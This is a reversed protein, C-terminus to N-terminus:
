RFCSYMWLIIKGGDQSFTIHKLNDALSRLFEIVNELGHLHLEFILKPNHKM